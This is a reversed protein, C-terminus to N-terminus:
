AEMVYVREAVISEDFGDLMIRVEYLGAAEFPVQVLLLRLGTVFKGPRVHVPTLWRIVTVPGTEEGDEDLPVLGVWALYRGPEGFLEAYLWLTEVCIPFGYDDTPRFYNVVKHLTYPAEAEEPNYDVRRCLMLHRAQIPSEM